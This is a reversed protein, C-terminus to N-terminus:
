IRPKQVLENNTIRPQPLFEDLNIKFRIIVQNETIDIREILKNVLVRKDPTDAKLFVERWTPIKTRLTEWDTISASTNQLEKELEAIQATQEQEKRKQKEIIHVLEELSLPYEGTIAQPIKDELVDINSRIKSLEAKEQQLIKKQQEREKNQNDLIEEFVNKNEQLKGIYEALAEFVIPEIKSAHILKMKEHPVGQWVNQCRYIVKRSTRREGTAKITWYDYKTGNTLKCGCYGCHAVDILALMGDNRSIVTANENKASKKYKEGRDKRKKQVKQWLERDIITIADNPKEALIWNKSELRIYKGDIHERRKYATYGAYIPNTLISTITGSKWVDNPAMKRYKEDSNLITAIKYSGFEKYFSLNYIYKVINAQEPVVVLHKLARQHKSYEGSFELTYGYPAKGGMFKGQQVLKQATDKVRMGTDSSSKQAMGYRMTLMIIGNVDNIDKPSLLGDSVTYVDVGAQKLSLIYGPIELVRRGLRDDKYAALIDYEGHEADKLAEQLVDRDAVSNKYGSNSGEFYEKSDLQWDQHKAIYESVIKRQVGLDGDAELQQDSSVRLLVRVRKIKSEM